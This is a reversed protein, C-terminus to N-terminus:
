NIKFYYTLFVVIHITGTFLGPVYKKVSGAWVLHQVGNAFMLIFFFAQLTERYPFTPILLVFIWFLTFVIEFTLFLWFPMPTLYWKKHFGTSLEEISHAIQVLLSFLFFQELLSM